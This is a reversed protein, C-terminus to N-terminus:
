RPLRSNAVTLVQIRAEFGGAHILLEAASIPLSFRRPGASGPNILLFGAEVREVLPKHSHGCVVVQTGPPPPYRRLTKIDHLVFLKAGGLEVALSDPLDRAWPAMDNNGRIAHLPAIARLADLV